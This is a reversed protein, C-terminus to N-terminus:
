PLTPEQSLILSTMQVDRTNTLYIPNQGFRQELARESPASLSLSMPMYRKLASRAQIARMASYRIAAVAATDDLEVWGGTTNVEIKTIPHIEWLTARSKRPPKLQEPHEQDYTTWGTIRVQAGQEVLAQLAAPNWGANVQRWRPTVEAVAAAVKTQRSGDVVWTHIDVGAPDTAGCNTSEASEPRRGILYGTIVIAVREYKGFEAREQPSWDSRPEKLHTPLSELEGVTTPRASMPMAIRNKLANLVPDQSDSAGEPGCQAGTLPDHFVVSQPSNSADALTALLFLGCV